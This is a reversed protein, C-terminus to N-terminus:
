PRYCIDDPRPANLKVEHEKDDGPTLCIRIKENGPLPVVQLCVDSKIRKVEELLHAVSADVRPVVGSVAKFLKNFDDEFSRVTNPFLWQQGHHDTTESMPIDVRKGM